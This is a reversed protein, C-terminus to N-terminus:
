RDGAGAADGLDGLGCPLAYPDEAAVARGGGAQLVDGAEAVEDALADEAGGFLDAVDEVSFGFCGRLTHLLWPQCQIFTSMVAVERRHSRHFIQLRNDQESLLWRAAGGAPNSGACVAGSDTQRRGIASGQGASV